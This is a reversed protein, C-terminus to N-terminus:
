LGAQCGSECKYHLGDDITPVYAKIFHCLKVCIILSLNLICITDAFFGM